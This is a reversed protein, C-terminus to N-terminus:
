DFCTLLLIRSKKRKRKKWQWEKKEEENAVANWHRQSDNNVLTKDYNVLTKDVFSFCCCFNQPSYKAFTLAEKAKSKVKSKM